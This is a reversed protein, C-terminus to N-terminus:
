SENRLWETKGNYTSIALNGTGLVNLVAQIPKYLFGLNRVIMSRITTVTHCSFKAMM